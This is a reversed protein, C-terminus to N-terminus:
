STERLEETTRVLRLKMRYARRQQATTQWGDGRHFKLKGSFLFCPTADTIPARFHLAGNRVLVVDGRRILGLWAAHSRSACNDCCAPADAIM